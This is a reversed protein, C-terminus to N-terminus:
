ARDWRESAAGGRAKSDKASGLRRGAGYASAGIGDSGTGAAGTVCVSALGLPMKAESPKAFGRSRLARGISRGLDGDVVEGLDLKAHSFDLDDFADGLGVLQQAEFDVQAVLRGGRWISEPIASHYVGSSRMPRRMTTMVLRAGRLIRPSSDCPMSSAALWPSLPFGTSAVKPSSMANPERSLYRELGCASALLLRCARRHM